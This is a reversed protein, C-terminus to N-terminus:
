YISARSRRVGASRGEKPPSRGHGAELFRELLGAGCDKIRVERTPAPRSDLLESTACDDPEGCESLFALM